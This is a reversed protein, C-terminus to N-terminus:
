GNSSLAKIKREVYKRGFGSKFYRERKLAEELNDVIEFYELIFPRRNRTSKVNGDNHKKLRRGIDKTCGYYRKQDTKSKLVYVYYVTSIRFDVTRVARRRERVQEPARLNSSLAKRVFRNYLRNEFLTL